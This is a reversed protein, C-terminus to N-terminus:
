RWLPGASRFVPQPASIKSLFLVTNNQPLWTFKSLTYLKFMPYRLLVLIGTETLQEVTMPARFLYAVKADHDDCRSSFREFEAQRYNTESSRCSLVPSGKNPAM